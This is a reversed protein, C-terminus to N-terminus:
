RDVRWRARGRAAGRHGDGAGAQRRGGATVKPVVAAVENVTTVSVVM